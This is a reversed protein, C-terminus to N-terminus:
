EGLLTFIEHLEDDIRECSQWAASGQAYQGQLNNNLKEIEQLRAVVDQLNKIVDGPKIKVTLTGVPVNTGAPPSAFGVGHIDDPGLIAGGTDIPTAAKGKTLVRNSTM